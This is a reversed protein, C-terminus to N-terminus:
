GQNWGREGCKNFFIWRAVINFAVAILCIAFVIILFVLVFGLIAEEESSLYGFDNFLESFIGHINM